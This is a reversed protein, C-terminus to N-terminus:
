VTAKLSPRIRSKYKEFDTAGSKKREAKYEEAPLEAIRRCEENCAGAFKAACDSCQLFLLNCIMNKCNAYDDCSNECQDCISLVDDTIREAIREDFVFNRGIFKSDTVTHAYTIVGGYLQSVDEFGRSKLYASAKECRIGGTCYLLIKKDKKDELMEVVQPLEERFTDVDPCIAGEFRGIRSEYFNRMDVVVANKDEMAINFEEANLHNGVNSLDYSDEPLGDAVIQKKVKIGLKYFSTGQEVAFNLRMNKFEARAELGAKFKELNEEPVCLQANIGERALYIRGFVGLAYWERYLEDRMEEPKEIKVYRYFSMTVRKFNETKLRQKLVKRDVLNKLM